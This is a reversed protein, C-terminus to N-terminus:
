SGPLQKQRLKQLATSTAAHRSRLAGLEESYLHQESLDPEDVVYTYTSH